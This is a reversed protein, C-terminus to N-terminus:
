QSYQAGATPDPLWNHRATFEVLQSGLLVTPFLLYDRARL